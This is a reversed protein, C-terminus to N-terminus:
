GYWSVVEAQGEVPEEDEGDDGMVRFQRRRDPPPPYAYPAGYQPLQQPVGGPAVVIVPPSAQRRDEYPEVYEEEQRRTVAMLLLATPISAAVGAIVGVLVALADSSMRTGIMVGLTVVFALALLVIVQKTSGASSGEVSRRM